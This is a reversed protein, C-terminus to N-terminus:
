QKILVKIKDTLDKVKPWVEDIDGKTVEVFDEYDREQRLSLINDDSLSM